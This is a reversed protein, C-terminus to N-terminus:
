SVVKEVALPMVEHSYYDQLPKVQLSRGQLAKIGRIAAFAGPITTCYFIDHNLATRRISYSDLVSSRGFTTNIVLAVEGNIMRDVIHPRGEKVKRVLEAELGAARIAEWTGRTAIIKFGQDLLEKAIAVAHEKDGDKVSLFAAGGLPVSVGAGLQAKIFAMPFDLDIGMVEGTSKMEPGLLTDVGPFRKFPFVAEKVAVHSPSPDEGIGLDKLTAGAMIRSAVKALPLGTAKSVFPVTRSARPNVELVYVQGRKLAFQINILGVVELEKAILRTQRKLEEVMYPSISYAPLSCASDGSHVGAEEIHEMVGAVLVKQGDAVADVDIEIADELFKDILIPREPSAEVAGSIYERLSEGDYVIRMARGGLVYSPRVVVPYGLGEAVQRAEEYSAAVGYETHTLGLDRILEGFRKRDETRDISEVSTGLIRVGERALPEALKLPTQGGFQVVVGEPKEAEVIALVDELTLPEFYLRHSIDYDTSVTEPNCNVMITEFGAEAFALAGHVCCYDFEIGQGIRNPGSGLIMVKRKETPRAECEEEYSSYLYPTYAEFEAACTDVRKFVPKVGHSRRLGRVEGESLGTLGAISADSYGHEKAQRLLSPTLGRAGEGRLTEEFAVVEAIQRLFWPDIATLEYCEDISMGARMARAVQWIRDPGPRKLAERMARQRDRPGLLHFERDQEELGHRGTELSRIAKGLAERFNRGIAMVEGVSRMQTGIVPEAEPFKEFAFRPFKVVCYDIAPEFSAPTKLTIDNQIEDLTLGVAL